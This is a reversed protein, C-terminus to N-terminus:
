TATLALRERGIASIIVKSANFIEIGIPQKAENFEVVIGEAVEDFYHEDGEHLVIYLIDNERDYNLIPKSM